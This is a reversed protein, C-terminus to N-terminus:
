RREGIDVYLWLNQLVPHIRYGFLWPQTLQTRIRSVHLLWPTAAEFVQHMQLYLRDREIGDPLEQTRQYLADYEPSAFCGNNSEGVNRGYLLMMFNDGDPYDAIWAAGRSTIQCLRERKLADAFREKQAEYRIGIADLSKKWLEDFQREVSAPDSNRRYVLPSGDPNTRYGDPGRRYGFRDLLRNALLPDYGISSRYAAVHGAVGPPIIYQAHVAQGRRIVDIEEQTDYAMAVARRLAIRAESMGGWQPDRMNFYTYTIEPDIMSQMAIGRAALDPALRGGPIAQPALNGPVAVTDLEGNRFALWRAQEEEIVHIEVRDLQPLARGRMRAALAQEAPDDGTTFDWTAGRWNPNRELVMKARRQWQTLMFANTGVPHALTDADNAEIVERAVIAFPTHALIFGFNYDARTLAIRVTYRDLARLGEVPADYDFRAPKGGAGAAGDAREAQAALADLGIIKGEILFRWVPRNRADMHRKFSYVVDDATLERPRDGFAADPAFLVGERLRITYTRGDESIQPMERALGPVLRPPRALYDYTLLKEFIGDVVVSSYLDHVKVPDFGTEATPFAVRLIKPAAPQPAAATAATAAPAAVALLLCAAMWGALRTAAARFRTASM